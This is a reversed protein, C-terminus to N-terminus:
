PTVDEVAASAPADVIADVTRQHWCGPGHSCLGTDPKPQEQDGGLAALIDRLDVRTPHTGPEISRECLDVLAALKAEADRARQALRFTQCHDVGEYSRWHCGTTFGHEAHETMVSDLDDAM